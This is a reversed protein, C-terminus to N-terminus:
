FAVRFELGRCGLIEDLEKMGNIKAYDCSDRGSVDELHPRAGKALLLKAQLPKGLNIAM